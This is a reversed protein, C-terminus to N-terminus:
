RLRVRSVNLSFGNDWDVHILYPGLKSEYEFQITEETSPRVTGGTMRIERAARWRIGDSSGDIM